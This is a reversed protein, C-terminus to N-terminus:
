KDMRMLEKGVASLVWIEERLADATGRGINIIDVLGRERLDYLASPDRHQVPRTRGDVPLLGCMLSFEHETLGEPGMMKERKPPKEIRGKVYYLGNAAFGTHSYEVPCFFSANGKLLTSLGFELDAIDDEERIALKQWGEPMMEQFREFCPLCLVKDQLTPPVFKEWDDSHFLEPWLTGCMECLVPTRIYPIRGQKNLIAVWLDSQDENPGESYARTGPRCDIELFKYICGCTILQGLCFPCREMDCGYLHLQGELAGCDHCRKEKDAM